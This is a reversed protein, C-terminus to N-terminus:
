PKEEPLRYWGTIMARIQNVPGSLLVMALHVVVFILLGLLGLFHLSRASQRGGLGDILWPAAAGIGPSMALGTFIMLPILGFVVAGYALRQVVGYGAEPHFRRRLHDWLDRGIVRPSWAARTIHLDRALHGNALSVVLYALLGLALGWAMALHWSRALALDYTAPLTIWGPFALAQEVGDAGRSLGFMGTTDFTHGLLTIGGHNAGAEDQWAGFELWAADDNAGFAGWYLRPHANFIMLGSMMLVLLVLANLWHWFRTPWRHRYLRNSHPARNMAPLIAPNALAALTEARAPQNQHLAAFYARM